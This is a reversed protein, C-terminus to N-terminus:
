STLLFHLAQGGFNGNRRPCEVFVVACFCSFLRKSRSQRASMGSSARFLGSRGLSDDNRAELLRNSLTACLLGSKQMKMHMNKPRPRRFTAILINLNESGSAWRDKKAMQYGKRLCLFSRKAASTQLFHLAQGGFNANRRPCEVFAVACFCSFLRKSWSQRASM